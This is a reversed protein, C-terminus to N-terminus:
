VYGLGIKNLARILFPKKRTLVSFFEKRLKKLRSVTLGYPLFSIKNNWYTNPNKNVLTGYRSAIDYFTSGPFPQAYGVYWGDLPLKKA